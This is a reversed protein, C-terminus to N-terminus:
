GPDCAGGERQAAARKLTELDREAAERETWAIEGELISQKTRLLVLTDTALVKDVDSMEAALAIVNNIATGLDVAMQQAENRHLIRAQQKV